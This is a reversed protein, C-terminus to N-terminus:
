GYQLPYSQLSWSFMRTPINELFFLLRKTSYRRISSVEHIVFRIIWRQKCPMTPELHLYWLYFLLVYSTALTTMSIIISIHPPLLNNDTPFRKYTPFHDIVWFEAYLIKCVVFVYMRHSPLNTLLVSYKTEDPKQLSLKYWTPLWVSVPQFRLPVMHMLPNVQFRVGDGDAESGFWM